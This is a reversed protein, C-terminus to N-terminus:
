NKKTRYIETVNVMNGFMFNVLSFFFHGPM